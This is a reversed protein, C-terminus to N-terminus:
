HFLWVDCLRLRPNGAGGFTGRSEMVVDHGVSSRCCLVRGNGAVSARRVPGAAIAVSASISPATLSTPAPCAIVLGPCVATLGFYFLDLPSDEPDSYGHCLWRFTTPGGLASFMWFGDWAPGRVWPSPLPVANAAGAPLEVSEEFAPRTRAPSTLWSAGIQPMLSRIRRNLRVTWSSGFDDVVGNQSRSVKVSCHRSNNLSLEDVWSIKTILTLNQM